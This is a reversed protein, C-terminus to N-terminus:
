EVALSENEVLLFLKANILFCLNVIFLSFIVDKGIQEYLYQLQADKRKTM